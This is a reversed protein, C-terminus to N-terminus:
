GIRGALARLTPLVDGDSTLAQVAVQDAGAELHANLREAVADVSGQAVLEDRVRDSGPVVLEDDAFGIRRLNAVYNALRLYGEVRARALRGAEVPDDNLVVKHEAVLLADPGLVARAGSTYGPTILYPLAGASRDRALELVRPGLAALARRDRPVGAEDLEDLYDVLAQYPKRYDNENERHGAGIGLIFRGPFAAELRHFSEATPKAAATWVNVISTGVAVTTTAALLPDVVSLDAAPSAGLWITGYGLQELETAKGPNIASPHLWVGVKGLRDSGAM